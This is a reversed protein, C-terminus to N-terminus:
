LLGLAKFQDSMTKLAKIMSALLLVSLVIVVASWIGKERQSMTPHKWILPLMFPGVCFFSVVLSLPSFYWAPGEAAAAGGSAPRSGDLMENCFRCKIAADQIEEACFPCRKM